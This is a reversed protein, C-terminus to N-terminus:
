TNTAGHKIHDMSKRYPMAMVETTWRVELCSGLVNRAPLCGGWKGMEEEEEERGEGGRGGEGGGRGGRRGERGERGGRVGERGYLREQKCTSYSLEDKQDQGDRTVDQKQVREPCTLPRRERHAGHQCVHQWM